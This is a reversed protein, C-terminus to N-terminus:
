QGGALLRRILMVLSGVIGVAFAVPAVVVAILFFVPEEVHTLGYIVNHLVVGAVFLLPSFATVVLFRNM